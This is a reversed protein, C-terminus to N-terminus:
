LEDAIPEYRTWWWALPNHDGGNFFTLAQAVYGLTKTMWFAARAESTANGPEFLDVIV